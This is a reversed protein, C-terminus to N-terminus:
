PAANVPVPNLGAAANLDANIGDSSKVVNYLALLVGKTLGWLKLLSDRIPPWAKSWALSWFGTVAGGVATNALGNVAAAAAAPDIAAANTNGAAASNVGASASNVDAGGPAAAGAANNAAQALPRAAAITRAARAAMAAGGAELRSIDAKKAFVLTPQDTEAAAAPRVPASGRQENNSAKVNYPSIWATALPVLIFLLGGALASVAVRKKQHSVSLLNM